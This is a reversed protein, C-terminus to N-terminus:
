PHPALPQRAKARARQQAEFWPSSRLQRSYKFNEYDYWVSCNRWRLGMFEVKTPLLNEIVADVETEDAADGFIVGVLADAFDVYIEEDGDFFAVFRFEVEDRWDEMKEFFLRKWYTDLHWRWYKEFGHEALVDLNILYHGTHDPAIHHNRYQIPGSIRRFAGQCALEVREALKERDFVLCVGSHVGAYQAWMRPRAFGRRSIEGMHDGTLPGVDQCLCLVRAHDKFRVSLAECLRDREASKLDRNENTWLDFHWTRTEKPDNMKRFSGMRLKGTQFIYKRATQMSTYHYVYKGADKVGEIM